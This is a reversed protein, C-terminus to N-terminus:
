GPNGDGDRHEVWWSRNALENVAKKSRNSVSSVIRMVTSCAIARRSTAGYGFLFGGRNNGV